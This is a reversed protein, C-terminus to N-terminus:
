PNRRELKQVREAGFKAQMDALMKEPTCREPDIVTMTKGDVTLRWIHAAPQPKAIDTAPSRPSQPSLGSVAPAALPRRGPSGPRNQAILDAVMDLVSSM